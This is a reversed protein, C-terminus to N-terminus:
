RLRRQDLIRATDAFVEDEPHAAALEGYISVARNLDGAHLADAAIREATKKSSSAPHVVRYVVVPEVVPAISASPAPVPPAPIAVAVPIRRAHSDKMRITVAVPAAVFIGFLIGHVLPLYRRMAGRM